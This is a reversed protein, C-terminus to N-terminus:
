RFVKSRPRCACPPIVERTDRSPLRETRQLDAFSARLKEVKEKATEDETYDACLDEAIEEVTEAVLPEETEENQKKSSCSAISICLSVAALVAIIRKKLDM